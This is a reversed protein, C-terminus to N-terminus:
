SLTPPVSQENRLFNSPDVKTKVRVLRDFNDGFYKRGWISAKEYSTNYLNNVGIDLDRYNIYASRPNKSVYPGMYRYVKRMWNIHKNAVISSDEDWYTFYGIQYLIGARHSYPISSEHIRNMVGGYPALYLFGVEVPYFMNWLKELVAEPIPEKVYDSKSKSRRRFITRSRLLQSSSNAPFSTFFLNSEQWSMETCDERVLGLEPFREEMLQLLDDVGGQYNGYFRINVSTNGTQSSNTKGMEGLIYLDETIQNAVTQWRYFLKTANQELSRQVLFVTVNSPVSVLNVKWAVVVGYTNGGGGRIAWFVDEEMSARDLLRGNVDVIHADIIHDAGVGYKRVLTGYGGGSLHGGIGVSGCVGVPFALTRDTTVLQYYLEGITAGAQVWASKSAVDINIATMNIMDLIIFPLVSVYSLGEYDHGGSRIRLHLGNERACLVVAQIHSVNTPTVIVLPKPTSTTNFRLDQLTYELVSSYSANNPTYIHKSITTPDGSRQLLCQIFQYHPSGSTILPFPLLLLLLFSLLPSSPSNM